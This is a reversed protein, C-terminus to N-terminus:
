QITTVATQALIDDDVYTQCWIVIISWAGQQTRSVKWAYPQLLHQVEQFLERSIVSLNDVNESQETLYQDAPTVFAWKDIAM